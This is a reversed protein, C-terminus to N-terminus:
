TVKFTLTKSNKDASLKLKYSGRKVAKGAFLKKVTITYTKFSGTKRVSKVVAWKKGKKLSLM